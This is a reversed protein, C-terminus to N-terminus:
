ALGGLATIWTASKVQLTLKSTYYNYTLKIKWVFDEYVVDEGGNEVVCGSENRSVMYWKRGLWFDLWAM